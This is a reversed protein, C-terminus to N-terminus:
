RRAGVTDEGIDHQRFSRDRREIIMGASQLELSNGSMTLTCATPVALFLGNEMRLLEWASPPTAKCAPEMDVYVAAGQEVGRHAIDPKPSRSLRDPVAVDRDSSSVPCPTSSSFDLCRPSRPSSILAPPSDTSAASVSSPVHPVARSFDIDVLEVIAAFRRHPWLHIRCAQSCHRPPHRHHSCLALDRCLRRRHHCLRSYETILM